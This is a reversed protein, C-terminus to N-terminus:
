YQINAFPSTATAASGIPGLDNGGAISFDVACGKVSNRIIVNGGLDIM